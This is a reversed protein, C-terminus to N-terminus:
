KDFVGSFYSICKELLFVVPYIDLSIEALISSSGARGGTGEGGGWFFHCLPSSLHRFIFKSPDVQIKRMIKKHDVREVSANAKLAPSSVGSPLFSFKIGNPSNYLGLVQLM